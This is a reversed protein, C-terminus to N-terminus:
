VRQESPPVRALYAELLDDVDEECQEYRLELRTFLARAPEKLEETRRRRENRDRPPGEPGFVANAQEAIDSLEAAGLTRLATPAHFALDGRATSYLNLFGGNSVGSDFLWAAAVTRETESLAEFGDKALRDIAHQAVLDSNMM